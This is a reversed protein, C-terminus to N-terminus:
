QNASSHHMFASSVTARTENPCVFYTATLLLIKDYNQVPFSARSWTYHTRSVSLLTKAHCKPYVVQTVEQEGAEEQLSQLLAPGASHDGHGCKQMAEALDVERQQIGVLVQHGTLAGPVVKLGVAVALQTINQEGSLQGVPQLAGVDGAVAEVWTPQHKGQTCYLLVTHHLM